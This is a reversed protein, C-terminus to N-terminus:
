SNEKFLAIDRRYQRGEFNIKDINAYIIERADNITAARATVTLV